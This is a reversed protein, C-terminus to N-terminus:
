GTVGIEFVGRYGAGNETVALTLQKGGQRYIGDRENSTRMGTKAHYPARTFVKDSFADDFYLQSTFEGARANLSSRVKFHIHVSRGQYWGPYVTTFKAVGAADTVQYGRLFKQGATDFFGNMDKVDSYLGMADCQWIDVVANQYPTCSGNAVRYVRIELDLPSGASVRGTGPDPRIDVRNLKEDVFYPGETQAPTVICAPMWPPASAALRDLGAQAKVRSAVMGAGAVGLLALAERRSLIRGIQADDNDMFSEEGSSAPRQDSTDSQRTRGRITLHCPLGNWLRNHALNLKELYPANRDRNFVGPRINGRRIYELSEIFCQAQDLLVLRPSELVKPAVHVGDMDDSEGAAPRPNSFLTGADGLEREESSAVDGGCGDGGRDDVLAHM